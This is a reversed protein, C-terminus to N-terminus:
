GGPKNLTNIESEASYSDQELHHEQVQLNKDSGGEGTLQAHAKWWLTLLSQPDRKTANGLMALSASLFSFTSLAGALFSVTPYM